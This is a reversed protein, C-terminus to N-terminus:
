KLITLSKTDKGDHETQIKVFYVGSALRNGSASRGDITVDHYGATSQGADLYTRVLRGNLDYLAVKVAGAKSTSFGLKASPNLPNPSINAALAGGTSKVTMTLSAQFMGGTTLSGEITVTVDNRGAPLGSFLLRLNAKSFCASIEQIGDQNKDGSVSTKEVEAPIESVSGTGMSIMIVSALIVNAVDFSGAVPEVLVCAFPKGSALNTTNNGGAMFALASFDGILATTTASASCAGDDVTLTVTYTARTTYTHSTTAGSGTSGDGFDWAYTLADGDPDSSGTGDLAVPAGFAGTYPGGANATPCRNVNVVTIAFSKEDTLSGDSVMATGTHRGADTFEPALTVLGSPTVLMFFPSVGVKSFTLADGDADSASLQQSATAGEDVTMDVPQALVPSRNSDMITLVTTASASGAFTDTATWNITYGGAQNNNPTGTITLTPNQSPGACSPGALFPANNTTCLTVNAGEPSVASATISVPVGETGVVSPPANIVPNRRGGISITTTASATGAPVNSDTASWNIVYIGDQTFNPVGTLTISPNLGPGSSGSAPFFPANNTQSLTVNEVDPDSASGTVSLSSNESGSATAPATIVPVRNLNAITIATTATSTQAPTGNDVASWNVSYSGSQSFNPTGTLTISPNAFPGASAPGTLFPANNTQSLTVLQGADPDTASGTISVATNETGSVSAPATIVHNGGGIIVTTAATSTGATPANTDVATWNVTFNGTQTSTPTGTLTISPTLSPGNSSSAPFFPANNTQSLTVTQADPDTASGTVSISGGAAGNASAPATIVPNRNQNAISLATSAQSTLFPTGNDVATWNITYSGAQSFNPVGTLSLTPNLMPGVSSSNPLFPTNNTQSLTIGDGEADTASATITVTSSETGSVTAPAAIVPPNNTVVNAGLGDVDFWDSGPKMTRDATHVGDRNAGLYMYQARAPASVGMAMVALFTSLLLTRRM